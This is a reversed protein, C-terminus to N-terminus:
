SWVVINVGSAGHIDNVLIESSFDDHMLEAHIHVSQRATKRLLGIKSEVHRSTM